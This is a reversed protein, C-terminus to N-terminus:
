MESFSGDPSHPLATFRPDAILVDYLSSLGKMVPFSEANYKEESPWKDIPPNSLKLLMCEPLTHFVGCFRPYGILV